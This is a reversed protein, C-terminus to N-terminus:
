GTSLTIWGEFLQGWNSISDGQWHKQFPRTQLCSFRSYPQGTAFFLIDFILAFPKDPIDQEKKRGLFNCNTAKGSLIFNSRGTSM